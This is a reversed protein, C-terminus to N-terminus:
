SLFQSAHTVISALLILPVLELACLYLIFYLLSPFNHYFIRFGKIIFMLRSAAYLGIAIWLMGETASPYFVTVLAPAMLTVGLFAQSSNFGKVWQSAGIPDTFLYGTFRYAILQAVYYCAAVGTLVAIPMFISDTMAIYGLYNLAAYILLGECVWLQFLLVILVRTENATPDDFANARRRVSWLDAALVGFLKACHKFSFAVFLFMVTLLTLIGSDTAVRPQRPEVPLGSLYTTDLSRCMEREAASAPADAEHCLSKEWPLVACVVSDPATVSDVAVVITDASTQITDNHTVPM